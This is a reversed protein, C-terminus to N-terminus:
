VYFCANMYMYICMCMYMYMLKYMAMDGMKSKERQFVYRGHHTSNWAKSRGCHNFTENKICTYVHCVLCRLFSYIM